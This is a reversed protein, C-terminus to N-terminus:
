PRAANRVGSAFGGGRRVSIAWGKRSRARRSASPGPAPRQRWPTACTTGARSRWGSRSRRMPCAFRSRRPALHRPRVAVAFRGPADEWGFEITRRTGALERWIPACADDGPFVATGSPALAVIAEGNERATAEVSGLFEQHERQANNVLAVDAAAIQALRAIEGPQNVGLEVVAARHSADLRMVTLPVGIQNNLNGETALTADAGYSARLIAALMEKVTTKGNSGTVAIVPLSHRRRWGCAIAGLAHLSDPALLAPARLGPVIRECLVAAAGDRQATAIFDHADFREGRLAVFLAGTVPSRTDTCVGSLRVRGCGYMVGSDLWDFAERMTFM